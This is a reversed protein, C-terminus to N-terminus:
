SFSTFFTFPHNPHDFPNRNFHVLQKKKRSSIACFLWKKSVNTLFVRGVNVLATTPKLIKIKGTIIMNSNLYYVYTPKRNRPLLNINREGESKNPM